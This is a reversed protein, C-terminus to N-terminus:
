KWKESILKYHEKSTSKFDKTFYMYATIPKRPKVKLTKDSKSGESTKFFGRLKLSKM